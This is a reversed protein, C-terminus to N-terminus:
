SCFGLPQGMRNLLYLMQMSDRQAKTDEHYYESYHWTDEIITSM